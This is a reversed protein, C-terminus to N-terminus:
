IYFHLNGSISLAYMGDDDVCIDCIEDRCYSCGQWESNIDIINIYHDEGSFTSFIIQNMKVMMNIVRDCNRIESKITYLLECSKRDFILLLYKNKNCGFVYIYKIDVCMGLFRINPNSILKVKEDCEILYKSIHKIKYICVVGFLLFFVKGHDIQLFSIPRKCRDRFYLIKAFENNTVIYILDEGIFLHYREAEIKDNYINGVFEGGERYKDIKINSDNSTHYVCFIKGCKYIKDSHANHRDKYQLLESCVGEGKLYYENYEVIIQILDKYMHCDLVSILEVTYPDRIVM